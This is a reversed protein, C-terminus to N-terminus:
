GSQPASPVLVASRRTSGLMSRALSRVPLCARVPVVSFPREVRGAFAAGGHKKGGHRKGALKVAVDKEQQASVPRTM